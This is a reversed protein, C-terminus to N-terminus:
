VQLQAAEAAEQVRLQAALEAEEERPVRLAAVALDAQHPSRSPQGDARTAAEREEDLASHLHGIDL